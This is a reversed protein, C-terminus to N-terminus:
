RWSRARARRRRCSARAASANARSGRRTRSARRRRSGAASRATPTSWRRRCGARDVDVCRLAHEGVRRRGPGVAAGAPGLRDVDDLASISAAARTSRCRDRDLQAAAVHDRRLLHRVAVRHGLGVVGAVELLHEVGASACASQFPKSARAASVRARPRSRPRPMAVNRSHVPASTNVSRTVTVTVTVVAVAVDLDERRRLRHPLPQQRRVRLEGDVHEAHRDLADADHLAVGVAAGAEAARARARQEDAARRHVDGGLSVTSSPACARPPRARPPAAAVDLVAVAHEADGAGVARDAQELERALLRARRM